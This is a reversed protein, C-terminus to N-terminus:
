NYNRYDNDCLDEVFEFLFKDLKDSKKVDLEIGYEVLLKQVFDHGSLAISCVDEMYMEKSM